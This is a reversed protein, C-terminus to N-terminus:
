KKIKDILLNLEDLTEKLVAQRNTPASALRAETLDRANMIEGEVLEKINKEDYEASLYDLLAMTLRDFINGEGIKEIAGDKRLMEKVPSIAHALTLRIGIGQLDDSLDSLMDASPVDLDTTASLDMLVMKVPTGAARAESNVADHFAAANIFSLGNEPRIILVGPIIINEPHHKIDSFDLHDPVRGLVALRPRSANWILALLSIVVAIALAQLTQFTMAALMAAMALWFDSRRVNWLHKLKTVKVMGAVAGIVIAALTAEPLNYFLGTFALAVLGTVVAAIIASMQSHAGIRDNAASKSLSCGIPFGQFLGAGMNAAGLGILEQNEDVEYHHSLAFNRSPGVAEAFAVLALGLAGPLLSIYDQLNIHPLKPAILGAPIHGVIEVGRGHLGLVTSAAIGIILVVLAAPVAEFYRMLIFLLLLCFSGVMLTQIHTESLHSIVAYVHQWFNGTGTSLGFLKPLQKSSIFLALGAVFGVMVSDSFFQAIRGLKLLGAIISILGALLALGATLVIFESTNPKAIVSVVAFSMTAVVASVAVILQRSSGFIAFMLLGIPAAYFAVKPPVGAIQAYAMGEPILLAVVTLGALFDIRLWGIKYDPLWRLIPIYRALRGSEEGGTM